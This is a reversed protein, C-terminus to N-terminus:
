KTPVEALDLVVVESLDAISKQLKSIDKQFQAVLEKDKPEHSSGLNRVTKERSALQKKRGKKQQEYFAVAHKVAKNVFIAQERPTGAQCSIRFVGTDEVWSWQVYQSQWKSREKAPLPEKAGPIETQPDQIWGVLDSILLRRVTQRIEAQEKDTRGPVRKIYLLAEAGKSKPKPAPAAPSHGVLALALLVLTHLLGRTM